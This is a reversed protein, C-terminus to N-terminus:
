LLNEPHRACDQLRTLLGSHRQTSRQIAQALVASGAVITVHSRARTVGTYLLERSLVQSRQAPLLVLVKDFESGQSKHVTMAWATQHPPLRSPAVARFAGDPTPFFVMLEGSPDPLTIGIDGNFLKLGADNRTVMVPLGAFWPSNDADFPGTLRQRLQASLWTNIADVGRASAKVACLVRFQLFAQHIRTIQGATIAGTRAPQCAAVHADFGELMSALATAGPMDATDDLWAVSPDQAAELWRLLAADRGNVIDSALRGIGSDTAFRFNRRFWVATNKLVSAQLPAPSNIQQADLGLLTALQGQRAADLSPDASLDAFVAGSEVASLQDKDGLLVIRAHEPVADLLQRALSLDLMSAEDVILVDIPLPRSADHAFGGQPRVGLLRHITFSETPLGVRLAQPLHQARQHLAEAMRAAAKGTPAALAIRADPQLALICALLNVVTTTKGTGPGGSIVTLRGLLAMATAVAQWDPESGDLKFLQALLRAMEPLAQPSLAAQGQTCRWLRKALQREHDFSKHLYLRNDADILLPAQGPQEAPTVVGSSLLLSRAANADPLPPTGPLLQELPLCVHGSSTALSIARAALGGWQAAEATAGSALSWRQVHRAFGEALHQEPRAAEPGNPSLNSM